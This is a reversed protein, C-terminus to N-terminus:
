AVAKGALKAAKLRGAWHLNWGRADAEEQSVLELEREESQLIFVPILLQDALEMEIRVGRSERWGALPLVYLETSARLFPICQDMWFKHHKSVSPRLHQELMPGHTIPSYIAVISTLRAAYDNAIAHRSERVVASDDTYPCALYALKM